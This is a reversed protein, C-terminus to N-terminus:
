KEKQMPKIIDTHNEEPLNKKDSMDCFMVYKWLIVFKEFSTYTEDKLFNRFCESYSNEKKDGM